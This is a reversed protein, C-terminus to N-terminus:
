HHKRIFRCVLSFREGSFNDGEVKPAILPISINWEPGSTAAKAMMIFVVCVFVVLLWVSIIAMSVNRRFSAIEDPFYTEDEGTVPSSRM